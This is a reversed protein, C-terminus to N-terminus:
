TRMDKHIEEILLDITHKAKKLDELQRTLDHAWKYRYRCVYSIVESQLNNLGNEYCFKYPQIKFKKYHDGGVQKESALAEKPQTNLTNVHEYKIKYAPVEGGVTGYVGYDLEWEKNVKDRAARPSLSLEAQAM